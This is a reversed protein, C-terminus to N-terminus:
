MVSLGSLRNGTTLKDILLWYLWNGSVELTCIKVDPNIPSCYM